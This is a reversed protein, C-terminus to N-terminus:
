NSNDHDEYKYPYVESIASLAISEIVPASLYTEFEKEITALAERINDGDVLMYLPSKKERGSVEDVTTMSSKVKYFLDHGDDFIQSINTERIGIIKFEATTYDQAVKYARAEADTYSVADILVTDTVYREFGNQDIKASKIKVEFFTSM